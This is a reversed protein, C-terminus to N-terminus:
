LSGPAVLLRAALLFSGGTNGVNTIPQAVAGLSRQDDPDHRREQLLRCV